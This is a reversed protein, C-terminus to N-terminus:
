ANTTDGKEQIRKKLRNAFSDVKNTVEEKVFSATDDISEPPNSTAVGLLEMFDDQYKRIFKDYHPYVFPNKVNFGTIQMILNDLHERLAEITETNSLDHIVAQAVEDVIGDFIDDFMSM